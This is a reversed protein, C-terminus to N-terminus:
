LVCSFERRRFMVMLRELGGNLFFDHLNRGEKRFDIEMLRSALDIVLKTNKMDLGLREGVAELPVLGCPVDELIYRHKLTCPADITRYYFNNQITEYLTRGNILYTREMWEKTTELEYGLARAVMVRERDIHEIFRAVTPSIGEYYYKYMAVPNETWGVNLLLPACHLIMGVNGLSTEIMSDAPIFYEQLCNPMRQIVAENENADFTSILVSSKIGIIDVSDPATKRCTYLNTQTEAITQPIYPNYKQYVEKFELAGFTRGPNLVILAEKKIHKAIQEALERHSCAPTTILIVDPNMLAEEMSDTVVHIRVQGDIMGRCHITKTFLLKEITRRSRNWLTVHHGARGLHAAFALGSNGAGIVTVNM